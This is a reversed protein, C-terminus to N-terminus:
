MGLQGDVCAAGLQRQVSEAVQLHDTFLHPLIHGEKHFGGDMLLAYLTFDNFATLRGLRSELGDSETDYM